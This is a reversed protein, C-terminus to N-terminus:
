PLSQRSPFAPPCVLCLTLFDKPLTACMGDASPKLPTAAGATLPQHTQNLAAAVLGHIHVASAGQLMHIDSHLPRIIPSYSPHM